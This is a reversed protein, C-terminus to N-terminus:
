IVRAIRSRRFEHTTTATTKGGQEDFVDTLV